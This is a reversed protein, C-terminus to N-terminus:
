AFSFFTGSEVSPVRSKAPVLELPVTGPAHAPSVCELDASEAARRLEESVSRGHLGPLPGFEYGDASVSASAPRGPVTTSGFACDLWGFTETEEANVGNRSRFSTTVRALTGGDSWGGEVDVHTPRAAPVTVFWLAADDSTSSSSGSVSPTKGLLSPAGHSSVAEAGFASVASPGVVSARKADRRTAQGPRSNAGVGARTECLVLASSVVKAPVAVGGFVCADGDAFPGAVSGAGSAGDARSALHAGFVHAVEPGWARKPFLGTVKPVPAFAFQLPALGPRCHGAVFSGRSAAFVRLAEFGLGGLALRSPAQCTVRNASVSGGRRVSSHFAASSTSSAASNEGFVCRLPTNNEDADDTFSFRTSLAVDLVDFSAGGAVTGHAALATPSVGSSAGDVLVTASAEAGRSSLERVAADRFAGDGWTTEALHTEPDLAFGVPVARASVAAASPASAPSVCTASSASVHRAAVPGVSGFRCGFRLEAAIVADSTEDSAGGSKREALRSPFGTGAITVEVGGSAPVVRPTASVVTISLARRTEFRAAGFITEDSEQDNEVGALAVTVELARSLEGSSERARYHSPLSSFACRTFAGSVYTARSAFVRRTDDEFFCWAKTRSTDDGFRAGHLTAPAGGFSARPSVSHVVAGLRSAKGARSTKESPTLDQSDRNARTKSGGPRGRADMADASVTFAVFLEKEGSVGAFSAPASLDSLLRVPATRKGAHAPAVCAVESASVRRARIPGVVGIWCSSQDALPSAAGSRKLTLTVTPSALWDASAPSAATAFVPTVRAFSAGRVSTAANSDFLLAHSAADKVADVRGFLADSPTGRVPPSECAALASSFTVAMTAANLGADPDLFACWVNEGRSGFSLAGVRAGALRVVSGGDASVVSPVALIVAAADMTELAFPVAFGAAGPVSLELVDFAPGAPAPAVARPARRGAFHVTVTSLRDGIGGENRVVFSPVAFASAPRNVFAVLVDSSGEFADFATVPVGRAPARAPAVCALAGAFGDDDDERRGLVPGLSGFRCWALSAPSALNDRHADFLLAGFLAVTTGGAADAVSPAAGSVVPSFRPAFSARRTTSFVFTDKTAVAFSTRADFPPAKQDRSVVFARRTRSPASTKTDVASTGASTGARASTRSFSFPADCTGSVSSVLRARAFVDDDFACFLTTASSAYRAEGGSGTKKGFVFPESLEFRVFGRADAFVDSGGAYHVVRTEGRIEPNAFGSFFADESNQEILGFFDAADAADASSSSSSLSFTRAVHELAVDGAAGDVAVRKAGPKASPAACEVSTGDIRRGAVTVSGFRCTIQTGFLDLFAGSSFAAPFVGELAVAGGFEAPVSKKEPFRVGTVAAGAAVASALADLRALVATQSGLASTETLRQTTEAPEQLSSRYSRKADRAVLDTEDVRATTGAGTSFLSGSAEPDSGYVRVERRPAMAPSVCATEGEGTEGRLSEVGLVPGITGFRCSALFAFNANRADSFVTTEAGGESPLRRPHVRTAAGGRRPVFAATGSASWGLAPSGVEVHASMLAGAWAPAPPRECAMLASSVFVGPAASAPRGLFENANREEAEAEAAAVGFRFLCFSSAPSLDAGAVFVPSGGLAPGERPVASVAVPTPANSASTEDAATAAARLKAEAANQKEAYKEAFVTAREGSAREAGPEPGKEDGPRYATVALGAVVGDNM